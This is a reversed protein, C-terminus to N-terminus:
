KKRTVLMANIELVESNTQYKRHLTIEVMDEPKAKLLRSQYDKVSKIDKGNINVIIDGVQIGSYFAPSSAEVATVAIGSELELEELAEATIDMPTIGLYARSENNVLSEIIPKVSSIGTFTNIDEDRKGSLHSTIIGVINGNLNVIFGEGEEIYNIDTHYLDVKHDTIYTSTGRSSVMGIEVSGMYGNPSGIAIIPTGVPLYGSEGLSALEINRVEAPLDALSIALIALNLESDFSQLRAEAKIYDTFSVRITNAGKVRNYSVLVLIDVENNAVVLGMTDDPVEIENQFWDKDTTISTVLVMSKSTNDAVQKIDSYISIVDDLGAQITTEIITTSTEEPSKDTPTETEEKENDKNNDTKEPERESNDDSPFEVIVRNNGFKDFLPEKAVTFVVCATLGFIAGLIITLIVTLVIKKLKQKKRTGVKEEIFNFEKEENQENKQNHKQDSNDIAM